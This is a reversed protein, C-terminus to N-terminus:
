GLLRSVAAAAIHKTEKIPKISADKLAGQQQAATVDGAPPTPAGGRRRRRRTHQRLDSQQAEELLLAADIDTLLSEVGHCANKDIM